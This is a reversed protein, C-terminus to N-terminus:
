GKHNKDYVRLAERLDEIEHSRFAMSSVPLSLETGDQFRHYSLLRIKTLSVQIRVYSQSFDKGGLRWAFTNLWNAFLSLCCAIKQKIM